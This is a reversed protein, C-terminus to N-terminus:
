ENVPLEFSAHWLGFRDVTDDFPIRRYDGTVLHVTDGDGEGGFREPRLTHLMAKLNDTGPLDWHKTPKFNDKPDVRWMHLADDQRGMIYWRGASDVFLRSSVPSFGPSFTEVSLDEGIRAIYYEKPLQETAEYSEDGGRHHYAVYIGGDPAVIMDNLKTQGFKRMLWPQQVWEGKTLDDCRALRLLRWSYGFLEPAVAPEFITSQLLAIASRGRIVI